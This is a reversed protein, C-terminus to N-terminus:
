ILASMGSRSRFEPVSHKIAEERGATLASVHKYSTVRGISHIGNSFNPEAYSPRFSSIDPLVSPILKLLDRRLGNGM